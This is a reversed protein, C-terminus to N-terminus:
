PFLVVSAYVKNESNGCHDPGATSGVPGRGYRLNTTAPIPTFIFGGGIFGPFAAVQQFSCHGQWKEPHESAPTGAGASPPPFELFDVGQFNIIARDLEASTLQPGKIARSGSAAGFNVQIWFDADELPLTTGPVPSTSPPSVQGPGATDIIRIDGSTGGAGTYSVVTVYIDMASSGGTVPRFATISSALSGAIGSFIQRNRWHSPFVTSSAVNCGRYAIFSTTIDVSTGLAVVATFAGVGLSITVDQMLVEVGSSIGVFPDPFSRVGAATGSTNLGQSNIDPFTQAIRETTM